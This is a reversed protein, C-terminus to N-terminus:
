KDKKRKLSVIDREIDSLRSSNGMISSDNDKVQKRVIWYPLLVIFGVILYIFFINDEKLREEM